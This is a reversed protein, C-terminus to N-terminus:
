MNMYEEISYEFADAIDIDITGDDLRVGTKDKDWCQTALSRIINDCGRLIHLMNKNLMANIFNIRSVIPKKLANSIPIKINSETFARRLGNILYQEASDARIRIIPVSPYKEAVSNVFEVLRKNISTSDVNGNDNIKDEAAVVFSKDRTIGTAVFTTKSKNGGFDVGISIFSLNGPADDQIYATPDNAFQIFIVGESHVWEGLIYRSYFVGEYEKKLAEVYARDLFPNDEITFKMSLLSLKGKRDIYRTKYWHTPMDANTTGFLKSGRVSLRSLLMAFFDEPVLTVEDVYAGMLTMGRIKSEARTDCAGEFFIQRGFLVGEKKSLSYHFHNGFLQEMIGLVNRKLSTLTKATMLYAGDQPMRGVWLGFVFASVWTKGSRVSGELVNIRELKENLLLEIFEKQKCSFTIFIVEM